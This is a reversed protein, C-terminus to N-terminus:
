KQKKRKTVWVIVIVIAAIVGATLFFPLTRVFLVAFNQIFEGFGEWSETFAESIREGFTPEETSAETYEIVEVISLTVTSYNVKSDYVNLQSQYAEIDAIVEYLDDQIVRIEDLTKAQELMAELAARKSELTKLRAEIDYYELTVDTTTETSSTINLLGETKELFSDLKDAPIRLVYTAHKATKRGNSLSEGGKIESNEIYGGVDNMQKKVSENAADFDMTEGDIAVNRIIKADTKIDTIETDTGVTEGTIIEETIYENTYDSEASCACFLFLSATLLLLLLSKFNFLKKMVTFVGDKKKDPFM